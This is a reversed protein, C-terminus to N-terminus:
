RPLKVIEFYFNCLWHELDDAMLKEMIEFKDVAPDMDGRLLPTKYRLLFVFLYTVFLLHVLGAM